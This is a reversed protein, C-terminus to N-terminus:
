IWSRKFVKILSAVIRSIFFPLNYHRVDQFYQRIYAWSLMLAYTIRNIRSEHRSASSFRLRRFYIADPSSLVLSKINGSVCAMFLADEGLRFRTNFRKDGIIHRPILKCCSSSMFSRGRFLSISKTGINRNYASTMYGDKMVDNEEDYDKVNSVVLSDMTSLTSLNELYTESIWDDDDIFCIYEGTAEDIALNRANSVGAINTQFLRVNLNGRKHLGNQLCKRFPEDCGNLVILVEFLDKSLTQACISDICKWIYSNPKYTPIIVSIKM